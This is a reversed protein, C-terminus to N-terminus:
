LVARNEWADRLDHDFGSAQGLVRRAPSTFCPDVGPEQTVLVELVEHANRCWEYRIRASEGPVSSQGTNYVLFRRRGGTERFIRSEFWRCAPCRVRKPAYEFDPHNHLSRRMHGPQYSSSMGLFTAEIAMRGDPTADGEPIPLHWIDTAGVEGSGPLMVDTEM